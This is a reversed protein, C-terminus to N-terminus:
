ASAQQRRLTVTPAAPIAAAMPRTDVRYRRRPVAATGLASCVAISVVADSPGTRRHAAPTGGASRIVCEGARWLGLARADKGARIRQVRHQPGVRDLGVHGPSGPESVPCTVTSRDKVFSSPPVITTPGSKVRLTSPPPKAEGRRAWRREAAGPRCRTAPRRTPRRDGDQPRRMWSNRRASVPAALWGIVTRTREHQCTRKGMGARRM